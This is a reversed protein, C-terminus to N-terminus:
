ASCTTLSSWRPWRCDWALAVAVIRAYSPDATSLLPQSRLVNFATVDVVYGAAGVALFTAVEPSTLKAHLQESRSVTVGM